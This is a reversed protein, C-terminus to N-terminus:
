GNLTCESKPEFLGLGTVNSFIISVSVFNLTRPMKVQVM